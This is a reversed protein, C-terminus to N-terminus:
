IVVTTTIRREVHILERPSEASNLTSNFFEIIEGAIKKADMDNIPKDFRKGQEMEEMWNHKDKGDKHKVSMFYTTTKM